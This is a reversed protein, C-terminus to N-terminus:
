MFDDTNDACYLKMMMIKLLLRMGLLRTCKEGLSKRWLIGLGGHPRGALIHVSSDMSSIGKAYFEDNIITLFQTDFDTLWIEQLFIIDSSACLM